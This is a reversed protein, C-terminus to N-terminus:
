RNDKKTFTIESMEQATSGAGTGSRGVLDDSVGRYGTGKSAKSRMQTSIAREVTWGHFIREYIIKRPLGTREAWENLTLTLGDHTFSRCRPKRKKPSRAKTLASRRRRQPKLEIHRIV